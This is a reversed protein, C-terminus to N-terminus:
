AFAYECIEKVQGKLWDLEPTPAAAKEKAAKVPYGPAIDTGYYVKPPASFSGSATVTVPFSNWDNTHGRYTYTFGDGDNRVETLYGGHPGREPKGGWPDPLKPMAMVAVTAVSM